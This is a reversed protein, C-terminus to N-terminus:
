IEKRIKAATWPAITCVLLIISFLNGSRLDFISVMEPWPKGAVFHGFLFEFALTLVLWLLGIGLYGGATGTRIFPLCVWTIALILASLLVGSVPLALRPGLLVNLLGDRLLGNAMAAVVMLLWIAVAKLLHSPM